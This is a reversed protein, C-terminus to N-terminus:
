MLEFNVEKTLMEPEMMESLVENGEDSENRVPQPSYNRVGYQRHRRWRLFSFSGQEDERMFSRFSKRKRIKRPHPEVSRQSASDATESNSPSFLRRIAQPLQSAARQFLETLFKM